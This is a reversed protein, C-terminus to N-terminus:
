DDGDETERPARGAAAAAIHMGVLRALVVAVFMQGVIAELIAFSRALGETPTLDGYGLTTLTVFSFYFLPAFAEEAVVISGLDEGFASRDELWLAGYLYSWALGILLYACLSIVIMDATVSRRRFMRTLGKWVMYLLAFGVYARDAALVHNSLGGSSVEVVNVILPPGILLASVLIPKQTHAVTVAATILVVAIGAQLIGRKVDASARAFLWDGLLGDQLAPVLVFM